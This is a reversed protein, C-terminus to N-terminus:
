MTESQTVTVTEMTDAEQGSVQKTLTSDDFLPFEWMNASILCGTEQYNLALYGTHKALKLSVSSLNSKLKVFGFLWSGGVGGWRGFTELVHVVQSQCLM